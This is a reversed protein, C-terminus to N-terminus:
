GVDAHIAEEVPALLGEGGMVKEACDGRPIDGRHFSKVIIGMTQWHYTPSLHGRWPTGTGLREKELRFLVEELLSYFLEVIVMALLRDSHM